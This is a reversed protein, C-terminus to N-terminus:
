CTTTLDICGFGKNTEEDKKLNQFFHGEHCWFVCQNWSIVPAVFVVAVVVTGVVIILRQGRTTGVSAFLLFCLEIEKNKFHCVELVRCM